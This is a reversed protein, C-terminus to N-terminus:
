VTSQLHLAQPFGPKLSSFFELGFASITKYITVTWIFHPHISVNGVVTIIDVWLM